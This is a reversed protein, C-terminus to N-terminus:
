FDYEKEYPVEKIEAFRLQRKLYEIEKTKNAIEKDKDYSSQELQTVKKELTTIRDEHEAVKYLLQQGLANLSFIYKTNALGSETTTLADEFHLYGKDKLENLYKKVSRPDLNTLTALDQISYTTDATGDEHVYLYEQIKMYFEKTYKSLDSVKLLFNESFREFQKGKDTFTYHNSSKEKKEVKLYGATELRQIAGMIFNKSFGSEKALTSIGPNCLNTKGNKHINIHAFVLIDGQKLGIPTFGTPVKAFKKSYNNSIEQM